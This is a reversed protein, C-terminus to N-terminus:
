IYGKKKLWSQRIMEAAREKSEEDSLYGGKESISSTSVADNTLTRPSMRRNDSEPEPPFKPKASEGGQKEDPTNPNLRARFKKTSSARELQQELYREVEAAAKATELITGHTNYYNEIVDYVMDYEGFHNILELEDGKEEITKRLEKKYNNITETYKQAKQNNEADEREKKREAELRDIKEQLKSIQQEPTTKRDNLVYDALDNFKWGHKEMFALPDSKLSEREKQYEQYENWKSKIESDRENLMKERRTLANFRRVFDDDNREDKPTPASTDPAPASEAVPAQAEPAAAPTSQESM